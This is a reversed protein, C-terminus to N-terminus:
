DAIWALADAPDWLLLLFSGGWVTLFILLAPLAHKPRMSVLVLWVIFAAAFCPLVALGALMAVALFPETEPIGKPDDIYPQPWHGISVRAAVRALHLSAIFLLPPLSLIAISVTFGRALRADSEPSRYTRPDAPDFPRGCEPCPGAPSASLDYACTLCRM